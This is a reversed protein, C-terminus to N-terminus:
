PSVRPSFGLECAGYFMHVMGLRGHWFGLELASPMEEYL